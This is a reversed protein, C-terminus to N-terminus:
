NELVFSFIPCRITCDWLLIELSAVAFATWEFCDGVDSSGFCVCQTRLRLSPAVFCDTCESRTESKGRLLLMDSQCVTCCWDSFGWCAIEWTIFEFASYLWFNSPLGDRSSLMGLVFDVPSLSLWEKWTKWVPVTPFLEFVIRWWHGGILFWTSWGKFDGEGRRILSCFQFKEITRWACVEKRFSRLATNGALQWLVASSHSLGTRDPWEEDM